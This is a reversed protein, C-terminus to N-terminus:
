IPLASKQRRPPECPTGKTLYDAETNAALTKRDKPSDTHVGTQRMAAFMCIPCDDMIRRLEKLTAAKDAFTIEKFGFTEREISVSTLYAVAKKLEESTDSCDCLRCARRPNLTCHDEHLRMSVATGKCKKCHECYYRWVKKKIM